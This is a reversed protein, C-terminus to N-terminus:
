VSVGVSRLDGARYVALDSRRVPRDIFLVSTGVEYYGPRATEVYQLETPRADPGSRIVLYEVVDSAPSVRYADVPIFADPKGRNAASIYPGDVVSARTFLVLDDDSACCGHTSTGM